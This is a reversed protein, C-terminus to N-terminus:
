SRTGHLNGDHGRDGVTDGRIGLPHDAERTVKLPAAEFRDDGDLVGDQDGAVVAHVGVVTGSSDPQRRVAGNGVRELQEGKQGAVGAAEPQGGTHQYQGVVM